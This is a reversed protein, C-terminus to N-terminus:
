SKTLTNVELVDGFKQELHTVKLQGAQDQAAPETTSPQRIPSQSTPIQSPAPLLLRAQDSIFQSRGPHPEVSSTTDLRRCQEIEQNPRPLSPSPTSHAIEQGIGQGEVVSACTLM